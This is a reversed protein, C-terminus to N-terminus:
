VRQRASSGKPLDKKWYQPNKNMTISTTGCKEDFVFPGTGVPKEGFADNGVSAHYASPLVRLFALKGELLGDPIQTQVELTTVSLARVSTINGFYDRAPFGNAADQYARITYVVDNTTLKEGNHFLVGDRLTMIMRTPSVRKWACALGPRVHGNEDFALLGDFIQQVITHSKSDFEQLPNLTLPARVDDCVVLETRAVVMNALVFLALIFVVSMREMM